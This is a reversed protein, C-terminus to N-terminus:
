AVLRLPRQLPVAALEAVAPDIRLTELFAADCRFHRGLLVTATGAPTPVDVEIRTRGDRPLLQLLDFLRSPSCDPALRIRLLARVQGALSALTVASFIALRPESDGERWQLDMGLLLPEGSEAAERLVPFLDPEFCSANFAGGSDSLDVGLYRQDAGQKPRNRWSLNEVLGAMAVRERTGARGSTRARVEASTVVAEAALVLAHREVPHGSLFFGFAEREHALAEGLRWPAEAGLLASIAPASGEGFLGGQGTERARAATQASGLLIDAARFVRDRRPELGDFAGAAALAEVQRRNLAWPDVRAAWDDLSRFRGGQERESVMAEMAAVGVGKLAGLAYRVAPVGGQEEVTFDAGSANIDPPLLPVGNHRMDDVLLRIKDTDAIDFALSAAFFAAPHHAKLWATQYAILAYAAAHSKNFGYGAFKEVLRFIHAAQERDVGRAVAGEVFRELQADMVAKDKKGMARRLLDAEGLSYGALAQAIQMVQEQYVIIGYTPKLIAELKPHLWDVPERGWKRAAFSPINDMPGPRFLAGLAIIDEFVTPRVLALARRMGPSEFQFVGVTNGRTLLRYVEEDDLPLSAIDVNIGRGALLKVARDIVSLTRLGLFDFKVLGAAEASKLDFQTVPLDSRPDRQLPVLEALPRDGIVIGAAHTSTHRPRGELRRAISILRAIRPDAAMAASLEPVDRLSRELDWPDAPENPIMKAIRDVESYSMQLVRGVDKVVARAKLSGFTVIQAVRDSGYKQQVYRIVEDRRTECFDIDFDPMSRREPNLFREFLLDLPLPDLDTIALAWAVLSGAGSGRGPGVPIGQARAWRIFDAVILFYGSFGAKHIIALEHALRRAYADRDVSGSMAALRAKLGQEALRVLEAQEAAEDAGLRPLVPERSRLAFATRRAVLLTNAVAEPLDAFREAFGKPDLLHQAPNSRVRDATELYAGHRVCLMVDHAEHDDPALFRALATGVIPVSRAHAWALLADEARAEAGEGTRSIEVFLRDGFLQLLAEGLDAFDQGNGARRVLPGDAGGTLAVLGGTRGALAALPLGTELGFDLHAASVLALLNQYGEKDKAFLPLWDPAAQGPRPSPREPTLPVLAGLLPQLGAALCTESFTMAAHLNGRDALAIAPLGFSAALQVLPKIEITSELISYCSQIRLPVYM